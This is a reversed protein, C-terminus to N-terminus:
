VKQKGIHKNLTIVKRDGSEGANPIALTTHQSKM